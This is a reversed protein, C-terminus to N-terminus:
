QKPPSSHRGAAADHLLFAMGAAADHLLFAMGAAADHLLFAMGAAADHLLFAMGAFAGHLCSDWEPPLVMCAPIGSRRFCWAPLFAVGAAAGNGRIAM